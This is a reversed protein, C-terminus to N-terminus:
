ERSARGAERDGKDSHDEKHSELVLARNLSYSGPVWIAEDGGGGIRKGFNQARHISAEERDYYAREGAERDRRQDETEGSSSFFMPSSFRHGAALRQGLWELLLSRPDKDVSEGEQEWPTISEAKVWASAREPSQDHAALVADKLSGHSYGIGWDSGPSLLGVLFGAMLSYRIADCSERAARAENLVALMQLFGADLDLGGERRSPENPPDQSRLRASVTKQIRGVQDLNRTEAADSIDDFLAESEIGPLCGFFALGGAVGLHFLGSRQADRVAPGETPAGELASLGEELEDLVERYVSQLEEDRDM